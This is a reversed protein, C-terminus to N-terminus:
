FEFFDGTFGVTIYNNHLFYKEGSVPWKVLKMFDTQYQYGIYIQKINVGLGVQGGLQFVNGRNDRGGMDDKKLYNIKEGNVKENAFFNVKLNLGAHANISVIDNIAFKYVGNVPIAINMNTYKRDGRDKPDILNYYDAASHMWNLTAGIEVFVPLHEVVNIGQIVGLSFGNPDISPVGSNSLSGITFSAQLRTYDDTEHMQASAATATFALAAALLYKFIKM